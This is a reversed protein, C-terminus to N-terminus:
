RPLGAVPLGKAHGALFCSKMISVRRATKAVAAIANSVGVAAVVAVAAADGGARPGARACGATILTV